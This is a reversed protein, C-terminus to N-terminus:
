QAAPSAQEVIKDIGLTEVGPTVAQASISEGMDKRWAQYRRVIASKWAAVDQAPLVDAFEVGKPMSFRLRQIRYRGDARQEIETELYISAEFAIVGFTLPVHAVRTGSKAVNSKDQFVRPNTVVKFAIADVDPLVIKARKAPEQAAPKSGGKSANMEELTAM